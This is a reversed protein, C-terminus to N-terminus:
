LKSMLTKIRQLSSILSDPNIYYDDVLYDYARNTRESSIYEVFYSFLRAVGYRDSKLVNRMSSVKQAVVEFDEISDVQYNNLNDYIAESIESLLDLITFYKEDKNESKLRTKIEKLVDNCKNSKKMGIKFLEQSRDSIQEIISEKSSDSETTMLRLYDNITIIASIHM